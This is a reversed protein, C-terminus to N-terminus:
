AMRWPTMSGQNGTRTRWRVVAGRLKRKASVIHAKAGSRNSLRLRDTVGDLSMGAYYHLTFVRSETEDLKADQMLSVVLRRAESTYLSRIADNAV